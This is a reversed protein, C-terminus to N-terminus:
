GTLRARVRGLLGRKESNSSAGDTSVQQEGDDADDGAEERKGAEYEAIMEPIHRYCM